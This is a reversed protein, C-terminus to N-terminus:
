LRTALRSAFSSQSVRRDPVGDAIAHVCILAAAVVQGEMHGLMGPGEGSRVVVIAHIAVGDGDVLWVDVHTADFDMLLIIIDRHRGVAAFFGLFIFLLSLERLLAVIDVDRTGPAPITQRERQEHSQTVRSVLIM